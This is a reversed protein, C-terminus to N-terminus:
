SRDFIERALDQDSHPGVLTHFAHQVQEYEEHCFEPRESPLIMTTAVLMSTVALTLAARM